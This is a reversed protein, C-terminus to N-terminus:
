DGADPRALRAAQCDEAGGGAAPRNAAGARYQDVNARSTRSPDGPSPLHARGDSRREAAATARLDRAKRGVRHGRVTRSLDPNPRGHHM